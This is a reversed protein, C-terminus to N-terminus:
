GIAGRALVGGDAILTQGTVYSAEDSALWYVAEAIEKPEAVRGLPLISALQAIGAAGGFSKELMATGVPGPCVANVRIGEKAVELAISKTLGIVGFKTASYVPSGSAARVGNISSLNVIAGRKKGARMAALEARISAWVGRLNVAVTREFSEYPHQDVTVLADLVGANNVAADLGGFTEVCEKVAREIAKGSTVDARIFRANEGLEAALARGAKMERDVIAVRAGGSLFREAIARGIGSAAGTVLVTGDM